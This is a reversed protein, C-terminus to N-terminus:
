ETARGGRAAGTEYILSERVEVDGSESLAQVAGAALGEACKVDLTHDRQMIARAIDATTCPGTAFCKRVLELISNVTFDACINDILFQLTKLELTKM